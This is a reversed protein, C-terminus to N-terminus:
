QLTEILLKRLSEGKPGPANENIIKGNKGILIYRPITKMDLQELFYANKHNLIKFSLPYDYIEESKLARTWNDVDSDISLYVFIIKEHALEEILKLSEPMAERCPACWSAWFDIYILHGKYKELIENLTSVKINKDILKVEAKLTEFKNINFLYKRDLIASLITDAYVEEFKYFRSQVEKFSEGFNIMAEISLFRAFKSLSDNLYNPVSDFAEKYNIYQSSRSYEPKSKIVNRTLFSYLISKGYPNDILEDNIFTDSDLISKFTSSNSRKHFINVKSHHLIQAKFKLLDIIQNPINQKEEELYNIQYAFFEKMKKALIDKDANNEKLAKKDMNVPYSIFKQYDNNGTMPKSTFDVKYFIETISDVQKKLAKFKLDKEIKKSTKLHEQSKSLSDIIEYNIKDDFVKLSLVDGAGILLTDGLVNKHSIYLNEYQNIDIEFTDRKKKSTYFNNSLSNYAYDKSISIPYKSNNKVFVAISNSVTKTPVEKHDSANKCGVVLLGILIQILVLSNKM